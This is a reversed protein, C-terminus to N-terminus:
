TEQFVPGPGVGALQLSAGRLNLRAQAQPPLAELALAPAAAAESSQLRGARPGPESDGRLRGAQPDLGSHEALEV